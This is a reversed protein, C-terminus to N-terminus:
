AVWLILGPFLVDNASPQGAKKCTTVPSHVTVLCWNKLHVTNNPTYAGGPLALTIDNISRYVPHYAGPRSYLKVGEPFLKSCRKGPILVFTSIVSTAVGIVQSLYVPLQIPEYSPQINTRSKEGSEEM